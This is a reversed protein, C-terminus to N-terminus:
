STAARIAKVIGVILLVVLLLLALVPALILALVLALAVAVKVRTPIAGLAGRIAGFVPNKSALMSKVAGTAAAIGIGGGKALGGLKGPVLDVVRDRLFEGIRDLVSGLGGALLGDRGGSSKGDIKALVKEIQEQGLRRIREIVARVLARGAAKLEANPDAESSAPRV